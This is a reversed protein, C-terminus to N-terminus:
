IFSHCNIYLNVAEGGGHAGLHDDEGCTKHKYRPTATHAPQFKFNARASSTSKLTSTSQGKLKWNM